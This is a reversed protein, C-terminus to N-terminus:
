LFCYDMAVLRGSGYLKHNKRKKDEYKNISDNTEFILVLVEDSM